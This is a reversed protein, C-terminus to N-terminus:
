IYAGLGQKINYNYRSFIPVFWFPMFLFHYEWWFYPTLMSSCLGESPMLSFSLSCFKLLTKFQCPSNAYLCSCCAYSFSQTHKQMSQINKIDSSNKIVTTTRISSEWNKKEHILIKYLGDELFYTSSPKKKTYFLLKIIGVCILIFNMSCNQYIRLAM